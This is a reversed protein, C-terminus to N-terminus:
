TPRRRPTSCRTTPRGSPRARRTTARRTASPPSSTACIAPRSRSTLLDGASNILAQETGPRASLPQPFHVAVPLGEPALLVGESFAALLELETTHWRLKRAPDKSSRGRQSPRPLDSSAEGPRARWGRGTWVELARARWHQSLATGPPEDPGPRARLAVRPDDAIAGHGGLEISDTLGAVAQPHALRHLGGLTVRPFFFFLAAAGALAALSLGGLALLM